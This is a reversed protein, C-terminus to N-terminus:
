VRPENPLSPIEFIKCDQTLGSKNIIYNAWIYCGYYVILEGCYSLAILPLLLLTLYFLGFTVFFDLM